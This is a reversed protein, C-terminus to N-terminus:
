LAGALKVKVSALPSRYNVGPRLEIMRLDREGAFYWAYSAPALVKEVGRGLVRRGCCIFIGM